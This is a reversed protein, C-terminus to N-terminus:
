SQESHTQSPQPAESGLQTEEQTQLPRKPTLKAARSRGKCKGVVVDISGNAAGKGRGRAVVIGGGILVADRGEVIAGDRGAITKRANKKLQRGVESSNRTRTGSGSGIGMGLLPKASDYVERLNVGGSTRDEKRTPRCDKKNHGLKGCKSCKVTKAYPDIEYIGRYRKKKPRGSQKKFVLPYANINENAEKGFSTSQLPVLQWSM